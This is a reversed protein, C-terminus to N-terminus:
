EMQETIKWKEHLETTQYVKETFKYDTHGVLAAKDRPAGDVRKIKNAYTHRTSYPVKNGEIGLREMMPKFIWKCFYEDNMLKYTTTGDKNVIVRPFLLDTETLALCEDVISQIPRPITVTRNKGAATKLGAVFYRIGNDDHYDSKKLSLFASPRFGLYGMAYVYKAYPETDFVNKIKDLDEETLPDWPETDGGKVFLGDAPNRKIMNEQVAYKMILNIVTRMNQKTRSKTTTTNICNQLMQTTIKDVKLRSLSEFHRYAARYCALTSEGCRELSTYYDYWKEYVEKLPLPKAQPTMENAMRCAYDYAERRTEFGSKSKREGTLQDYWRAVWVRGHKYATGSGNGRRLTSRTLKNGCFCCFAAEDPLEKNCKKCFPKGM